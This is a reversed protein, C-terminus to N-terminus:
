GPLKVRGAESHVGLKVEVEIELEEVDETEVEVFITVVAVVLTTVLEAVVEALEEEDPAPAELALVLMVAVTVVVVDLVSEEETMRAVPEDDSDEVGEDLLDDEMMRAVPPELPEVPDGAGRDLPVTAVPPALGVALGTPGVVLAGDKLLPAATVLEAETSAAIPKIM